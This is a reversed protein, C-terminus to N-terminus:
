RRRLHPPAAPPTSARDFGSALDKLGKAVLKPDHALLQDLDVGFYTLNVGSRACAWSPIPWMTANGLEVSAVSRSLCKFSARMAEGSLHEAGRGRRWPKVSTTPSPWRAPITCRKAASCSCWRGSDPHLRHRHRNCRPARAIPHRRPGRRRRRRPDAGARRAEAQGTGGSRVLRHPFGGSHRGSMGAHHRRAPAHVGPAAGDCPQLLREQRLGGRHRGRRPDRVGTGVPRWAAWASSASCPAPWATMWCDDELLGMALMVDRFNLGAAVVKWRSTPAARLSAPSPSGPSIIWFARAPFELTLGTHAATGKPHPTPRSAGRM